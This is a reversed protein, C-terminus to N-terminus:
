ALIYKSRNWFFNVETEFLVLAGHWHLSWHGSSSPSLSNSQPVTNICSDADKSVSTFIMGKSWPITHECSCRGATSVFCSCFEWIEVAVDGHGLWCIKNVVGRAWLKWMLGGSGSVNCPRFCQPWGWRSRSQLANKQEKMESVRHELDALQKTQFGSGFPM